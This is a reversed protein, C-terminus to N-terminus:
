LGSHTASFMVKSLPYPYDAAGLEYWQSCTVAGSAVVVTSTASGTDSDIDDYYFSGASTFNSAALDGYYTVYDQPQPVLDVDVVTQRNTPTWGGLTGYDGKIAYYHVSGFYASKWLQAVSYTSTGADWAYFPIAPTASMAVGIPTMALGGSLRPDDASVYTRIDLATGGSLFPSGDPTEKSIVIGGSYTMLESVKHGGSSIQENAIEAAEASTIGGGSGGGGGASGRPIGFDIIQNPADGSIIVYAGSAPDLTAVSGVTLSNAIMGASVMQEVAGSVTYGGGSVTTLIFEPDVAGSYRLYTSIQQNVGASSQLKKASIVNSAINSATTSDIAGVSGIAASVMGSVQSSDPYNSLKSDTIGSAITLVAASTAYGGSSIVASVQSVTALTAGSLFVSGNASSLGALTPYNSLALAISVASDVEAGTYETYYGGSSIVAM